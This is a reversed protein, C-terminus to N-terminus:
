DPYTTNEKTPGSDLVYKVFNAAYLSAYSIDHFQYNGCELPTAGPVKDTWTAITFFMNRIEDWIDSPTRNGKLILYFGTMCGMPGFYIVDESLPSDNRLYTAGIHEITHAAKPPFYNGPRFVRIDYTTVPNGDVYDVRSVYIGEKLLFHNVKFSDIQKM